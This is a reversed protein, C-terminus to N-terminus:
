GEAEAKIQRVLRQLKTIAPSLMSDGFTVDRNYREYRNLAEEWDIGRGDYWGSIVSDYFTEAFTDTIDAPTLLRETM